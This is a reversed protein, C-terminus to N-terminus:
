NGADSEEGTFVVDMLQENSSIEELGPAQDAFVVTETSYAGSSLAVTDTTQGVFTLGALLVVAAVASFVLGRATQWLASLDFLSPARQEERIRAMVRATFFPSPEVVEAARTRLLDAAVLTALYAQRCHECVECHTTIRAREIGPLDGFRDRELLAIIHEERM